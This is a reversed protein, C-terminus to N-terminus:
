PETAILCWVVKGDTKRYAGWDKGLTEVLLLGRGGDEDYEDADRRVPMESSADWVHIVMSVRDSTVWLHVVPCGMTRLRASAQVANTVLESVVLEATDALDALGWERAVVRVHGRAVGPATPLAALPLRTQLPWAPSQATMVSGMAAVRVSAFLQTRWYEEAHVSFAVM